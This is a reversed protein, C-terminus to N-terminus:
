KNVAKGQDDGSLKASLYIAGPLDRRCQVPHPEGTVSNEFVPAKFIEESPKKSIEATLM